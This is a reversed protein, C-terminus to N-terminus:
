SFTVSVDEVALYLRQTRLTCSVTSGSRTCTTASQAALWDYWADARPSTVSVTVDYATRNTRLLERGTRRTEVLTSGGAVARRDTPYTRVMPVLVVDSTLVFGPERVLVAGGRDARVLAGSSYVIRSGDASYVVPAYRRTYSFTESANAVATGSVTLEVTDDVSLTGDGLKLQTARSPPGAGTVSEVNDALVAFSRETNSLQQHSQVDAVGAAGHVSVIVLTLLVIGFVAAFGVAESQARETM